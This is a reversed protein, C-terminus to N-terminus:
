FSFPEKLNKSKYVKLTLNKFLGKVRLGIINNKDAVTSFHEKPPASSLGPAGVTYLVGIM